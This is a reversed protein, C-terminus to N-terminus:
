GDDDRRAAPPVLVQFKIDGWTMGRDLHIREYNARADPDYVVDVPRLQGLNRAQDYHYAESLARDLRDGLATKQGAVAAAASPADTVCRYGPTEHSSPDAVLYTCHDGDGFLDRLATDVFTEGLKEGVMDSSRGARGLFTLCPTRSLHGQVRVRDRMRYRLFGAPTTVIVQVEDGERLEHLRRISGDETEFELFIEDLLPVPARARLIPLTVPAETALLGKGQIPIDPFARRLKPIFTQSAGDTWVSILKLEPWLATWPPTEGDGAGELLRLREASVPPIPIPLEATGTQGSRLDRLIDDRQSEVTELLTLLYTPSWVSILELREEALLVAALSRRYAAGDRITKIAPPVFFSSALLRQMLPSLYAADDTMSIPVGTPTTEQRQFAPSVSFFMRGTRLRPGSLVLDTAWLVFTANFAAMLAPTYPVLKPLGSSGSTQEYIVPRETSISPVGSAVQRDIWPRLDEYDVIPTKTAFAAYDDSPLLGLQRGYPSPAALRLIRRLVADQAAEPRRLALAFRLTRPAGLAVFGARMATSPLKALRRIM